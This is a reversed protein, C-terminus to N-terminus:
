KIPADAVPSSAKTEFFASLPTSSRFPSLIAYVQIYEALVSGGTLGRRRPLAFSLRRPQPLPRRRRRLDRLTSLPRM